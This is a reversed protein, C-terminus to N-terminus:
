QRDSYMLSGLPMITSSVQSAGSAILGSRTCARRLRRALREGLPDGAIV